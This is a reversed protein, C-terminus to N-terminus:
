LWDKVKKKYDSFVDGYREVLISDQKRIFIFRSILYTILILAISFVSNMIFGLGLTMVTIGLNTPNRTYKYPGRFFFNVDREKDFDERKTRTTSQAWYVLISGVVIMFLGIYEFVNSSFLNLPYIQDLVVGFVIAGLFIAYTHFLIIHIVGQIIPKETISNKNNEDM